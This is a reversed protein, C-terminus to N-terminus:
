FRRFKKPSKANVNAHYGLKMGWVRHAVIKVFTAILAWVIRLIDLATLGARSNALRGAKALATLPVHVFFYPVVVIFHLLLDEAPLRCVIQKTQQAEEVLSRAPIFTPSMRVRVFAWKSDCPLHETHRPRYFGFNLVVLDYVREQPPVEKNSHADELMPDAEPSQARQTGQLHTALDDQRFLVNSLSSFRIESRPNFITSPQVKVPSRRPSVRPAFARAAGKWKEHQKQQRYLSIYDHKREVSPLPRSGSRPSRCRPSEPPSFRVCRTTISEAFDKTPSSNVTPCDANGQTIPSNSRPEDSVSFCRKPPQRRGKGEIRPNISDRDELWDLTLVPAQPASRTRLIEAEYGRHGESPSGNTSNPTNQPILLETPGDLAHYKDMAVDLELRPYQTRKVSGQKLSSDCSSRSGPQGQWDMAHECHNEDDHAILDQFGPENSEDFALVSAFSPSLLVDVPTDTMTVRPDLNGMPLKMSQM